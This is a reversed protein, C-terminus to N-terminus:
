PNIAFGHAIPGEIGFQIKEEPTLKRQRIMGGSSVPGGIAAGQPAATQIESTPLESPAETPDVPGSTVTRAKTSSKTKEAM